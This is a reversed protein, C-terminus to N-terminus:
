ICEWEEMFFHCSYTTRSFKCSQLYSTSIINNSNWDLSDM